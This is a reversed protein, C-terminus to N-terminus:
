NKPAAAAPKPLDPVTYPADFLLLFLLLFGACAGHHFGGRRATERDFGGTRDTNARKIKRAAACIGMLLGTYQEPRKKGYQMYYLVRKEWLICFKKDKKTSLTFDEKRDGAARWSCGNKCRKRKYFAPANAIITSVKGTSFNCM